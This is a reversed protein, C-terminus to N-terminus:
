GAEFDVYQMPLRVAVNLFYQLLHCDDDDDLLLSLVWLHAIWVCLMGFSKMIIMMTMPWAGDDIDNHEINRKFAEQM